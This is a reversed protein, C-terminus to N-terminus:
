PTAGTTATTMQRYTRGALWTELLLLAMTAVILWRWLKQRNELESNHLIAKQKAEAALAAPQKSVPAGLRELEDVAMPSTLSEAAELNVAFSRTSSGTGVRYVGPTVTATYNTDGAKMSVESGDPARVARDAKGAELIAVVDGVFHRPEPAIPAGSDELLSYLLPVFKTSLALQSDEPHWGATLVLVRGKGVATELLAPDGSDFRALVRHNQIPAPDLKRHKWFHIKTFDSFRPDAFPLFLPHRFDINALLAYDRPREESLSLNELGLLKALTPGATTNKLVFLLNKGGAVAKRLAAVTEDPLAESVVLLAAAELEAQTPAQNPPRNVVRVALGPTEQFARGLFFLMRRPDTEAESGCYLVQPRAAEPPVVFISNDFDGADGQLLVRSPTPDSGSRADQLAAAPVNTAMPLFQVRSQGRPVYLSVPAGVFGRGDPQAWGVKFEENRSEPSNSVRVRIGPTTTAPANESETVWQLSANDSHRPKLVDVSLSIDKPWEYGQLADLRSGQQLDTILVIRGPVAGTKGETDALAEAATMVAHGARTAAWGPSVAALKRSAIAARDGSPTSNWEDFTMLPTVQRDFTYLAVQDGPSAERLVADARQRADSWLDPRRMSASSDVLIATRAPKAVPADSVQQKLFPRAFAFALLCIVTCRLVLLLIHELRSRRTLRPPTPLLFMLSSFPTRDRTSQRILHFLVPLAIALSGLLFLPALFSM